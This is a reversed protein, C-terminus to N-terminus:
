NLPILEHRASYSHHNINPRRASKTNNRTAQLPVWALSSCFCRTLLRDWPLQRTWNDTASIPLLANLTLHPKMPHLHAVRPQWTEAGKREKNNTRMLLCHPRTHKWTKCARQVSYCHLCNIRWVEGNICQQAGRPRLPLAKVFIRACEFVFSRAVTLQLLRSVGISVHGVLTGTLEFLPITISVPM